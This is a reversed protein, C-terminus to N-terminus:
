PQGPTCDLQLAACIKDKTDTYFQNTESYFATKVFLYGLAGAVIGIVANKNM